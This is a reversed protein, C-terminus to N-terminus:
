LFLFKRIRKLFVGWIYVKKYETCLCKRFCLLNQIQLVFVGSFSVIIVNLSFCEQFYPSRFKLGCSVFGNATQRCAARMDRYFCEIKTADSLLFKSFNRCRDFNIAVFQNLIMGSNCYFIRVTAVLHKM